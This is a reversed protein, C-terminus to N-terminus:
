PFRRRPDPPGPPRNLDPPGPRPPPRQLQPSSPPASQSPPPPPPPPSPPRPPPSPPRPPPPPPAFQGGPPPPQRRAGAAADAPAVRQQRQLEMTRQKAQNRQRFVEMEVAASPPLPRQGSVAPPPTRGSPANIGHAPPLPPPPPQVITNRVPRNIPQAPIAVPPPVSRPPVPPRNVFPAPRELPAIGPLQVRQAGPLAPRPIMTVLDPRFPRAPPTQPAAGQTERRFKEAIRDRAPDLAPGNWGRDIVPATITRAVNRQRQPTGPAGLVPPPAGIVFTDGRQRNILVNGRSGATFVDDAARVLRLTPLPRQLLPAVWAFELGGNFVCRQDERYTINTVNRTQEIFTVNWAPPLLVNRIVPASFDRVRCFNFRAPGIDYHTDVWVGFGTDRQWRAEPPLPAWGIYADSTRWSVWAPGWDYDPVWCWGYGRVVIWRGYHYTIGGWDEYSVWTWGADTYAWYGDTYPAWDAAVDAPRWVYGYGEVNSWEGYPALTDYFFDFSVGVPDGKAPSLVLLACLFLLAVRKM